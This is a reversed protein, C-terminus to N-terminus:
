SLIGYSDMNASLGMVSNYARQFKEWETFKSQHDKRFLELLEVMTKVGVQFQVSPDIDAAELLLKGLIM